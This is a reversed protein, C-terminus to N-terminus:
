RRGPGKKYQGCLRPRNMEPLELLVKKRSSTETLIWETSRPHITRDRGAIVNMLPCHIRPLGRRALLMLHRLDSLCHVPTKDYTDNYEYLFDPIVEDSQKETM